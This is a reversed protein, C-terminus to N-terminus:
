YGREDEPKRYKEIGLTDKARVVGQIDWAGELCAKYLNRYVRLTPYWWFDLYREKGEYQNYYPIERIEDESFIEKVFEIDDRKKLHELVKKLHYERDDMRAVIYEFHIPRPLIRFKHDFWTGDYHSYFILIKKDSKENTMESFADDAETYLGGLKLPDFDKMRSFKDIFEQNVLLPFCEKTHEFNLMESKFKITKVFDKLRSNITARKPINDKHIIGQTSGEPLWKGIMKLSSKTEYYSHYAYYEDVIKVYEIKRKVEVQASVKHEQRM